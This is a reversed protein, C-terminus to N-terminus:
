KFNIQNTVVGTSILVSDDGSSLTIAGTLVAPTGGNDYGISAVGGEGGAVTLDINQGDVTISVSSDSSELVVAGTLVDTDVTLSAVGSVGATIDSLYAIGLSHGIQTNNLNEISM